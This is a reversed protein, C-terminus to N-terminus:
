QWIDSALANCQVSKTGSMAAIYYFATTNVCLIPVLIGTWGKLLSSLALKIALLELVNIHKM